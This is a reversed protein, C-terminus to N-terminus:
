ALYLLPTEEIHPYLVVLKPAANLREIIKAIMVKEEKIMALVMAAFAKENQEGKQPLIIDVGAMFHHRPVKESKTFGIM